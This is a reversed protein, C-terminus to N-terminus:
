ALSEQYEKLIQDFEDLDITKATVDSPTLKVEERTLCHEIIKKLNKEFSNVLKQLTNPAYAERNYNFTISLKGDVIVGIIELPHSREADQSVTKGIDFRSLQFEEKKLVQDFQGLYNFVIEPARNLVVSNQSSALYRLIGYGIGKNPIQRLQEKISIIQRSLKDAWALDLIVPYISTFWGVTRAINIDLFDAERGHGELNITVKDLGSWDKIALGLATLLLDNIETNYAKNAQRLLKETEAVALTFTLNEGTSVKDNTIEHDKPLPATPTNEINTWYGLEQLLQKSGAYEKLKQSWTQYSDTKEPLKIASNSCAQSYAIQIDELLIRWSLGDVVLHHIVILLHDGASTKFLGLKILPGNHLDISEQLNNTLTTIQEDYDNNDTFDYVNLTFQEDDMERITQVVEGESRTFGSRLLDHHAVIKQLVKRLVAENLGDKHYLMTAQNWHHMNTFNKAFFWQQIPTLAVQGTVAGQDIENVSQIVYQSLQKIAPNTLLNKVDVKLNYRQLRALVQIAKISDGGLAFFNDNIGINTVGLVEQWIEVLRKEVQNGPAEYEADTAVSHEPDPLMKRDVKGSSTLPLKEMRIIHAPLMYDPLEQALYTRVAAVDLEEEQTVVYGCLYKAGDKGEKVVVVAEKIANYSQLRNEIEGLEIRLGRIKVQHDTRGLYEINGDPLWRALDGTLYMREGPMFPDPVFRETTLEPRNLYGRALGDGAIYLDGAIGVPLPRRNRDLVYLRTNDIPKGIPIVLLGEGPSCNFYSVDITAETPGYLNILRTQNRQYLLQNFRKVQQLTLAEGSAFVQKLSSLRKIDIGAEVYELFANLMSPVFHMTTIASREIEDVIKGPDKEGGPELFCVRGGQLSWWFQEWVSVDFTYPTKQLIADNEGIPYCKQMWNLRNVLSYHEIMVGKPKGTSGSTYIVYAIDQPTNIKDLNGAEGTYLSKEELDITFGDFHVKPMFRNQTLVVPAESDRLMYSIREEPTDPSMPLYAGGAKVIGMIGITMELSRELLMGVISNPKVGKERLVRALQNAKENLQRYTLRDAGFIAATHEPTREVQEEFLQPITKDKPYEAQTANWDNLITAQEAKSMLPYEGLPLSPNNVVGEVLEIYHGMMRKVTALDYLEPDYKINFIFHDVQDFIELAFEFEGEQHIGQVFQIQLSNPSSVGDTDFSTPKLFNQYVFASQFVPSNNQTRPGNLDRVLVPFPYLAHDLGDVVHLQLEQIITDFRLDSSLQSRIPLMNVFYGIQPDFRPQPRGMTPMGVIIDELGTYRHLFVQYVGLLVISLNVQQTQACTKIRQTIESSLVSTYTQGELRHTSYRPRDVPLEMVPLNGALRQMWYARHEEGETSSLMTQEWEVFDQFSASIRKAEAPKGDCLNRYAELLSKVLIVMSSGDFIIHHVVILVIHEQESQSFLRIRMLPGNELSFPEKSKQRIYPLIKDAARAAINEHQWDLLQSAQIMQYPVGDAEGFISTLIPYQELMFSGAQKFKEIDLKQKVQFCLPVNYSSMAPSVKHLMWLGKQGESLPMKCPQQKLARLEDQLRAASLKGEKFAMLLEQRSM